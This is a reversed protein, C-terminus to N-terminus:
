NEKSYSMVRALCEEPTPFAEGHAAAYEALAENATGFVPTYEKPIKKENKKENKKHVTEYISAIVIVALFIGFFVWGGINSKLLAYGASFLLGVLCLMIICGLNSSESRWSAKAKCKPCRCLRPNLAASNKIPDTLVTYMEDAWEDEVQKEVREKTEKQKSPLLSYCTESRICQMLATVFNVEGCRECKWAGYVEITMASTYKTGKYGM